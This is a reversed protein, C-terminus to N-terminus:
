KLELIIKFYLIIRGTIYSDMSLFSLKLYYQKCAAPTLCLKWFCKLM